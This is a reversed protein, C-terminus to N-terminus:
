PVPTAVTPTGADALEEDTIIGLQRLMSLNDPLIWGEAIRGCSIRHLAWVERNMSRGTNPSDWAALPAAQTGSFAMRIAVTEGEAVMTPITVRLDPFERRLERIREAEDTQGSTPVEVAPILGGLGPIHLVYDNALVEDLVETHGQGYADEYFRRVLEKNEETTTAPCSTSAAPSAQHAAAPDPRGPTLFSGAILVALLVTVIPIIRRSM